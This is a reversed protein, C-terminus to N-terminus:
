PLGVLKEVRNGISGHQRDQVEIAVLDAIWGNQGADLMFLQFCNRRPQPQVGWKTSPSSGSFICSSMAVVKSLAMSSM